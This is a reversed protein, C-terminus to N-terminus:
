FHLAVHSHVRTMASARLMLRSSPMSAVDCGRRRAHFYWPTGFIARSERTVRLPYRNRQNRGGGIQRHEFPMPWAPTHTLVKAQPCRRKKSAYVRVRRRGAPCVRALAQAGHRKLAGSGHLLLLLGLLDLRRAAPASSAAPPRAAAVSRSRLHIHTHSHTPASPKSCGSHVFPIFSKSQMLCVSLSPREKKRRNKRSGALSYSYTAAARHIYPVCWSACNITRISMRPSPLADARVLHLKRGSHPGTCMRRNCNM